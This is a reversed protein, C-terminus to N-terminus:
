LDAFEKANKAAQLTNYLLMTITMPGVGGPVPTIYSAVKSAEEFNVDGYLKGDVRNMGVDIVIASPKIMDGTVFNARGVAAVLIDAQRTFEKLNVTKSHCITVTADEKLLLMAMPKGVINSRGIVVAHKGSIEVKTSKILEIIGSPTCANLSPNFLMLNGANVASFGDVDKKPLITQLVKKEDIAKPLPLQVLIGNVNNDENLTEILSILEQEKTDIPLYYAFSKIGVAQCALIKNKVYINSAPDEGVKIVSLGVNLNSKKLNEVQLKIKKRLADSVLKGDIIKAM